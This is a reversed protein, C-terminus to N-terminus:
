LPGRGRTIPIFFVIVCNEWEIDEREGGAPFIGEKWWPCCVLGGRERQGILDSCLHRTGGALLPESFWATARGVREAGPPPEKPRSGM